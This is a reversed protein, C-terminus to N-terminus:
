GPPPKLAAMVRETINRYTGKLKGFIVPVLDRAQNSSARDEVDFLRAGPPPQDGPLLVRTVRSDPDTKYGKRMVLRDADLQEFASFLLANTDLRTVTCEVRAQRAVLSYKTQIMVTVRESTSGYIHGGSNLELKELSGTHIWNGEIGIRVPPVVARFTIDVRRDYAMLPAPVKAKNSPGPQIADWEGRSRAFVQFGPERVLAAIHRRVSEARRQGLAENYGHTARHDAHGVCLLDFRYGEKLLSVLSACLTHLVREDQSDLRDEDTRFHIEGLENSMEKGSQPLDKVPRTWSVRQKVSTDGSVVGPPRSTTRALTGADPKESTRSGAGQPGPLSYGM